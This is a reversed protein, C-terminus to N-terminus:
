VTALLLTAPLWELGEALFMAACVASGQRNLAEAPSREPASRAASKLLLALAAAASQGVEGWLRRRGEARSRHKSKLESLDRLELPLALRFAQPTVLVGNFKKWFEDYSNRFGSEYKPEYSLQAAHHM